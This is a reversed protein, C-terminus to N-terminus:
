AHARVWILKEKRRITREKSLLITKIQSNLLLLLQLKTEIKQFICFFVTLMAPRFSFKKKKKKKKKKKPNTQTIQDKKIKIKKKFRSLLYLKTSGFNCFVVM